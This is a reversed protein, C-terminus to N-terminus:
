WINSVNNELYLMSMISLDISPIIPSVKLCLFLIGLSTQSSLFAITYKNPGPSNMQPYLIEIYIYHLVFVSMNSSYIIVHPPHWM